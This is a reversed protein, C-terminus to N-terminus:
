YKWFLLVRNNKKDIRRLLGYMQSPTIQVLVHSKPEGYGM